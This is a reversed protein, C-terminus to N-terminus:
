PENTPRTTRHRCTRHGHFHLRMRGALASRMLHAVPLGLPMRTQEVGASAGWTGHRLHPFPWAGSVPVPGGPGLTASM